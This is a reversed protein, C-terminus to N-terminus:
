ENEKWVRELEYSDLKKMNLFAQTVSDIQKKTGSSLLDDMNEHVVQWSVGFADKLWGCQEAEP